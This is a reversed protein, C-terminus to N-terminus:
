SNVEINNLFERIVVSAAARAGRELDFPLFKINTNNVHVTFINQSVFDLFLKQNQPTAFLRGDVIISRPSILNVINALAIGLYYLANEMVDYAIKDGMKQASLVHDITLKEPDTCLDKLLTSVGSRMIKQCRQLIAREGAIAELCGHNGCTPCVPGNRQVVTHGIEGAAAKKGYLVKGDIIMQCAVGYSSSFYAFPEETVIRDFLDACIARARVNNEVDVKLGIIKGLEASLNHETWGEHFTTYIKDASGDILGPLCVGVCLIREYPIGTQAIFEPIGKSLVELTKQYVDLVKDTRKSFVIKGRFDTIMYNIQYPGVDVGCSYFASPAFELMVRPRGAGKIEETSNVTERLLGQAVLPAVFGTITATTLGLDHAIEVRSIPSQQYIHKVILCLNKQKLLQHNSGKEVM